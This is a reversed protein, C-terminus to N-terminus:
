VLDDKAKNAIDAIPIFNYQMRKIEGNDVFDLSVDDCIYRHV